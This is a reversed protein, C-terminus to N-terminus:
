PQPPSLSGRVRIGKVLSYAIRKRIAAWAAAVEMLGLDVDDRSLARRDVGSTSGPLCAQAHPKSTTSTLPNVDM